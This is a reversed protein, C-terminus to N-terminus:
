RSRNDRSWRASSPTPSALSSRSPRRTRSSSCPSARQFSPAVEVRRELVIGDIPSRLQSDSLALGAQGARAAAASASGAYGDFRARASDFEAQSITGEDVLKKARGYDQKAKRYGASAEASMGALESYKQKFDQKRLAALVTDRAVSDGAQLLRPKKDSKDIKLGAIAEVYGSVKFAIDVQTQALVTGSYRATNTQTTQAISEIRVARPPKVHERPHGCGLQCALLVAAFSLYERM